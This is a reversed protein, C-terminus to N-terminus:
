VIDFRNLFGFCLGSPLYGATPSLAFVHSKFHLNITFVKLIYNFVPVNGLFEVKMERADVAALECKRPYKKRDSKNVAPQV